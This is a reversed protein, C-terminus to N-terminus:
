IRVYTEKYYVLDLIELNKNYNQTFHYLRQKIVDLVKEDFKKEIAMFICNCETGPDDPSRSIFYGHYESYLRGRRMSDYNELIADRYDFDYEDLERNFIRMEEETYEEAGEDVIGFVYAMLEREFNGTYSDTKIVLYLTDADRIM